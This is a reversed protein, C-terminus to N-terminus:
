TAPIATDDGPSYRQFARFTLVAAVFYAASSAIAAGAAGLPPALLMLLLVDVVLTASPIAVSVLPRDLVAIIFPSVAQPLCFALAGALAIYLPLLAHVYSPDLAITVLATGIVGILVGTLAGAILSQRMASDTLVRARPVDVRAVDSLNTVALAGPVLWVGEAFAAALSYYAVQRPGALLALLVIDLRLAAFGLVNTPHARVSRRLAPRLFLTWSPLLPKSLPRSRVILYISGALNGLGWLLALSFPNRTLLFAGSCVLSFSTAARILDAHAYYRMAGHGVPVGQLISYSVVCYSIIGFALVGFPVTTGNVAAYVPAVLVILLLPWAFSLVVAQGTLHPQGPLRLSIGLWISGSAVVGVIVAGAVLAAYQGRATPSLVISTLLVTAVGSSAVAIRSAVILSLRSRLAV